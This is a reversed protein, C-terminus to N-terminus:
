TSGSGGGSGLLSEVGYLGALVRLKEPAGRLVFGVGRERALRRAHLLLAVASTDIEALASADVTLDGGQALAAEIGRLAATAQQMTVNAPLAVESV